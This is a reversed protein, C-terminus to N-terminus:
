ISYDWDTEPVCMYLYMIPEEGVISSSKKVTYIGASVDRYPPVLCFVKVDIADIYIYSIWNWGLFRHSSTAVIRSKM